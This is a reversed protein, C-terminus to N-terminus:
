RIIGLPGFAFRAAVIPEGGNTGDDEQKGAFEVEGLEIRM